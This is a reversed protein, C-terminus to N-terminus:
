NGSATLTELKSKQTLGPYTPLNFPFNALSVTAKAWVYFPIMFLSEGIPRLSYYDGNRLSYDPYVWELYSNIKFSNKEVMARTLSYQTADGSNLIGVGSSFYVSSFFIFLFWAPLTNNVKSYHKMVM